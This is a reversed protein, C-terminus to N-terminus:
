FGDLLFNQFYKKPKFKREEDFLNRPKNLINNEWFTEISVPFNYNNM